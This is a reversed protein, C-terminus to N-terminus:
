VVLAGQVEVQSLTALRAWTGFANTGHSNRMIWWFSSLRAPFDAKSQYNGITTAVFTRARVDRHNSLGHGLIPLSPGYMAEVRQAIRLNRIEHLDMYQVMSVVSRYLMLKLAAMEGCILKTYLSLSVEVNESWRHTKLIPIM